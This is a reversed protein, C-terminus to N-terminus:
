GQLIDFGVRICLFCAFITSSFTRAISVFFAESSMREVLMGYLRLEEILIVERKACVTLEEHILAPLVDSM